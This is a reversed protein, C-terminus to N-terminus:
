LLKRRSHYRRWRWGILWAPLFLGMVPFVGPACCGAPAPELCDATGNMNADAVDNAGPCADCPNGVGDADSDAQDLNALGPCNDSPDAVGDGDVDPDARYIRTRLDSMTAVFGIQGQEGLGRPSMYVDMVTLGDLPDDTAIVKDAVPDPGTFIGSGGGSPRARYAVTGANNISVFYLEAFNDTTDAVTTTPGGDGKLIMTEAAVDLVVWFAAVGANNFDPEGFFQFAGTDDAITMTPGGDGKFVGQVGSNLTGLFAVVGFDNLSAIRALSNFGALTSAITTEAGDMRIIEEGGGDLVAMYAVAGSSNISPFIGFDAHPGSSDEITTTSVGDGTFVGREGGDLEAYFVVRGVHNIDPSAAIFIGMVPEQEFSAFPGATDAITTTPGGSGTFIGSGGSDLNAFFAVVGHENVAPAGHGGSDSFSSFEGSTDAIRTFVYDIARADPYSGLLLAVAWLPLARRWSLFRPQRVLKSARWNSNM